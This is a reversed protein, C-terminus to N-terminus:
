NPTIRHLAIVSFTSKTVLEHVTKKTYLLICVLLYLFKDTYKNVVSLQRYETIIIGVAGLYRPLLICEPTLLTIALIKSM